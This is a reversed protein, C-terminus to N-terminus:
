RAERQQELLEEIDCKLAKAIECGIQLSPNKVGREFQCIAASTVGVKDALQLQTMGLRVRREKINAGVSM